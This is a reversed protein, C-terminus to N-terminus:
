RKKKSVKISRVKGFAFYVINTFIGFLAVYLLLTPNTAALVMDHFTKIPNLFIDWSETREVKGLVVAYSIVFNLIFYYFNFGGKKIKFYQLVQDFPKIAVLYTVFGLITLIIYQSLLITQIFNNSDLFQQPFYQLDTVLYITNPLFLFWVIFLVFRLFGPMKRNLIAVLIVPIFALILNVTM